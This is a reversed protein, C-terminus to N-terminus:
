LSASTQSSCVNHRQESRIWFEVPKSEAKAYPMLRRVPVSRALQGKESYLFEKNVKLTSSTDILPKCRGTKM